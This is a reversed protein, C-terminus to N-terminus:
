ARRGSGQASRVRSTRRRAFRVKELKREPWHTSATMRPERKTTAMVMQRM